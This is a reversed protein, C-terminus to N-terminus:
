WWRNWNYNLRTDNKDVNYHEILLWYNHFLYSFNQDSCQFGSVLDLIATHDKIISLIKWTKKYSATTFPLKEILFQYFKWYMSSKVENMFITFDWFTIKWNPGFKLLLFSINKEILNLM